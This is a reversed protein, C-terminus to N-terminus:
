DKMPSELEALLEKFDARDRIADLDSDRKM